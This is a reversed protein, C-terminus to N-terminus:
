VRARTWARWGIVALVLYVAYLFSTYYINAAWYSWVAVVNVTMWIPWNEVKKRAQLLQGAVSFAAIFADRYPMRSDTFKESLLSLAIWAVAALALTTLRWRWPQATVPLQLKKAGREPHTWHWWGYVLLVAFFVQLVSDAYFKANWFLAGQVAVAVLGVPFAWLNRRIMLWVGVIGLVFNAQDLPSASTAGHWIDRFISQL